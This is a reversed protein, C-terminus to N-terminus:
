SLWVGQRLLIRESNKIFQDKLEMWSPFTDDRVYDQLQCALVVEKLFASKEEFKERGYYFYERLATGVKEIAIAEACMVKSKLGTLLMNDISDEELPCLYYGVDKDFRWKRKLFSIDRMNLFPVSAAGKDAMTYTVGVLALEESLSTHNFWDVKSSFVNDDGYTCLRVNNRFSKLLEQANVSGNLREYRMVYATRVYLSNVICNVIVTLPHGSPNAGFFEVLDGNFDIFSFATDFAIGWVITIYEESAGAKRYIEAIIWFAALIIKAEMNKDFLKYDGAVMRDEGFATLYDFWQHWEISQAVTGPAGEFAQKNNQFLRVFSLFYKRVVICWDMPGGNMVRTKGIEIKSFPIAQDKLHAVFLPCARTSNVYHHEIQEIRELIEQSPMVGDSWIETDEMPQLFHKKSKNFPYGASTSRNIKDLYKVGPVGNVAAELSLPNRLESLDADGLVDLVDNLYAKKVEELLDPKINATQNVTDKASLRWPQYGKMKPPGCKVVYGRQVLESQLLTPEVSSKHSAKFGSLSGYVNASGTEMYRFVSKPHLPGIADKAEVKPASSSIIPQDFKCIAVELMASLDMASACVYRGALLQHIGVITPGLPTQAVLVSGCDGKVTEVTPTGIWHDAVRYMGTESSLTMHERKRHINAVNNLIISGDESRSVYAGKHIGDLAISSFISTIDRKPPLNAVRFLCLDEGPFRQIDCDGLVITRNPTVGDSGVAQIIEVGTIERGTPINHNNTLYIQGGVCIAKGHSLYKHEDDESSVRIAVCNRSVTTLVEAFPLVNWSKCQQSLDMEVTTYDNKYWVNVEEDKSVPVETHLTPKKDGVNEGLVQEASKSPGMVKKAVWCTAVVTFAAIVVKLLPSSAVKAIASRAAERVLSVVTNRALRGVSMKAWRLMRQSFLGLGAISLVHRAARERKQRIIDALTPPVRDEVVHAIPDEPTQRFPALWRYLGSADEGISISPSYLAPEEGSQVEARERIDCMCFEEDDGCITCGATSPIHEDLLDPETEAVNDINCECDCIPIYCSDCIEVSKTMQSAIQAKLQQEKHKLTIHAYFKLFDNIHEFEEILVEKVIQHGGVASDAVIIKHVKINWFDGYRHPTAPPLKTPDIMEPADDRSYEPKAHIEFVYPFRRRVAAPNSFWASANLDMTNTSALVLEYRVPKKGKSELDAQPPNFVVSNVTSIIDSLSPDSQGKNPNIIGVDDLVLCWKYTEHGPWFEDTCTRVHVFDDSNPKKHVGAYHARLIDMMASKAVSSGGYVLTSFPVPRSEQAFKKVIFEAQLIRLKGMLTRVSRLAEKNDRVSRSIVDGTKVVDDLDKLFQFYDLGVAEPVALKQSDEILRFAKNTWQVCEDEDFLPQLSKECVARYVRQIVDILTTVLSKLFGYVGTDATVDIFRYCLSVLHHSHPIGMFELASTSVFLCALKRLKHALPCNVIRDTENFVTKLFDIWSASGVEDEAAQQQSTGEPVEDKPMVIDLVFPVVTNWLHISASKGTLSRYVDTFLCALDSLSTAKPLWNLFSVTTEFVKMFQEKEESSFQQTVSYMGSAPLIHDLFQTEAVESLVM